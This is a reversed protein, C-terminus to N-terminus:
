ISTLFSSLRMWKDLLLRVLQTTSKVRELEQLTLVLIQTNDELARAIHRRAATLSRVDGTIGNTAVLIGAHCGRERLKDVFIRIEEAGVRGRWNKCETLLSIPLFWLGSKAGKNAFFIDIEGGEAFDIANRIPPLIGPITSFAHCVLQELVRGRAAPNRLTRARRACNRVHTRRFRGM